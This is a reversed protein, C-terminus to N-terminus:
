FKYWDEQDVQCELRRFLHSFDSFLRLWSTAFTDAQALRPVFYIVQTGLQCLWREQARYIIEVRPWGIDLGAGLFRFM